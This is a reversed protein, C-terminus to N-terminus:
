SDSETEQAAFQADVKEVSNLPWPSDKAPWYHTCGVARFSSMSQYRGHVMLYRACTARKDCSLNRCASYDPM